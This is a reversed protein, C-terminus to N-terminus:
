VPFLVSLCMLQEKIGGANGLFMRIIPIQNRSAQFMKDSILEYILNENMFPSIFVYNLLDNGLVCFINIEIKCGLCCM